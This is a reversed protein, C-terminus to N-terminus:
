EEEIYSLISDALEKAQEISLKFLETEVRFTEGRKCERWGTESNLVTWEDRERKHVRLWFSKGNVNPACMIRVPQEAAEVEDFPQREIDSLDDFTRDEAYLRQPNKLGIMKEERGEAATSTTAM